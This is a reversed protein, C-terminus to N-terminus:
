VPMPTMELSALFRKPGIYDFRLTSIHCWYGNVVGVNEGFRFLFSYIDCQDGAFFGFVSAFSTTLRGGSITALNFFSSPSYFDLRM